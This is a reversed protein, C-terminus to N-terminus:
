KLCGFNNLFVITKNQFFFGYSGVGKSSKSFSYDNNFIVKLSFHNPFTKM